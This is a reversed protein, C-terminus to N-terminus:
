VRRIEVVTRRKKGRRRGLLFDRAETEVAEVEGQLDRFRQEIDAPTIPASPTVPAPSM